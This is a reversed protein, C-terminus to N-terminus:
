FGKAQLWDVINQRWRGGQIYLHRSRRTEIKLREAEPSGAPFLDRQLDQVLSNIDGAVNRILLIYKTNRIDSYVPLTGNPTRSVFYPYRVVTPKQAQSAHAPAVSYCRVSRLPQIISKLM